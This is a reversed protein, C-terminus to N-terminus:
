STAEPPQPAAALMAKWVRGFCAMHPSDLYAKQGAMAMDPSANVPVMVWGDAVSTPQGSAADHTELAARARRIMGFNIHCTEEPYAVKSDDSENDTEPSCFEAECAKTLERLADVVIPVSAADHAALLVEIREVLALPENGGDDEYKAAEDKVYPLAARLAEALKGAIGAPPWTAKGLEYGVRLASLDLKTWHKDPVANRWADFLADPTGVRDLLAELQPLTSATM